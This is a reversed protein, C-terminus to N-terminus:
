GGLILLSGQVGSFLQFPIAKLFLMTDVWMFCSVVGFLLAFVEVNNVDLSDLPWLFELCEMGIGLSVESVEEVSQNYRAVLRGGLNLKLM